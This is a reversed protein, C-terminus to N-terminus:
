GLAIRSTQLIPALIADALAIYPSQESGGIWEIEQEVVDAKLRKRKIAGPTKQDPMLRRTEHGTTESVFKHAIECVANKLVAPIADTDFRSGENDTANARPWQLTQNQFDYKRGTFLPGYNADIFRTAQRLGADQLTTAAVTFANSAGSAAYNDLYTICDAASIYSDALAVVTGDEVVVAM